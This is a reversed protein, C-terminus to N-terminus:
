GAQANALVAPARRRSPMLALAVIGALANVAGVLLQTGASFAILATASAHSHLGGVIAAQQAGAGNPLVPLLTTLSDICVIAVAAAADLGLHFAALLCWIMTIRLTWDLATLPGVTRAFRLPSGVLRLGEALDTLMRGLRGDRCRSGLARSARWAAFALVGCVAMVLGALGPSVPLVGLLLAAACLLPVVILGPIAEAALTALVAVPRADPLTRRALAIRVADGGRLPAVVNAAVSGLYPALAARFSVAQQPLAARLLLQWVRVRCLISASHVVLAILLWVPQARGAADVVPAVLAVLTAGFEQPAFEM